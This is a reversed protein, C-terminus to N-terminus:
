GAAAEGMEGGETPGKGLSGETSVSQQASSTLHQKNHDATLCNKGEELLQVQLTFGAAAFTDEPHKQTAKLLHAAKAQLVQTKGSPPLHPAEDRPQLLM